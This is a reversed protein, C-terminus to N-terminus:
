VKVNLISGTLEDMTRIVAATASYASEVVVHSAFERPLDTNSMEGVGGIQVRVRQGQRCTETQLADGANVPQQLDPDQVLPAGYNGAHSGASRASADLAERLDNESLRNIVAPGPSGDGYVAAVRAGEGGPGTALAVRSAKYGQTNVNAINSASVGMAVDLANLASQPITLNSM